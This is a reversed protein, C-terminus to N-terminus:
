LIGAGFPTTKIKGFTCWIKYSSNGRYWTGARVTRILELRTETCGTPISWQSFHITVIHTRNLMDKAVKIVKCRLICSVVFEGKTTLNTSVHTKPVTSRHPAVALPIKREMQQQHPFCLFTNKGFTEAKDLVALDFLYTRKVCFMSHIKKAANLISRISLGYQECLKLSLLVIYWSLFENELWIVSQNTHVLM